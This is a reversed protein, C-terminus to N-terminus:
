LPHWLRLSFILYIKLGQSILLNLNCCYMYIRNLIIHIVASQSLRLIHSQGTALGRPSLKGNDCATLVVDVVFPVAELIDWATLKLRLLADEDKTGSFDSSGSTVSHVSQSGKCINSFMIKLLEDVIHHVPTHELRSLPSAVCALHQQYWVKLKPFSYFFIPHVSSSTAVASLRRKNRGQHVNGASELHSNHCLLLYEPTPTFAPPEGVRRELPRHDFRWLRLLVVFANSFVDRASIIEGTAITCLVNSV